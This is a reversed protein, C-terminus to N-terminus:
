NVAIYNFFNKRLLKVFYRCHKNYMRHIVWPDDGAIFGCVELHCSFCKVTDAEDLVGNGMDTGWCYFGAAALDEPKIIHEYPWVKFTDLRYQESFVTKLGYIEKHEM